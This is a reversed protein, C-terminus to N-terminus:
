GHGQVRRLARGHGPRTVRQGDQFTLGIPAPHDCPVGIEHGLRVVRPEELSGELKTPFSTVLKLYREHTPFSTLFEERRKRGAYFRDVQQIGGKGAVSKNICM